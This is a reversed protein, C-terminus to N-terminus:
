KEAYFVDLLHQVDERATKDLEPKIVLKDGEYMLGLYDMVKEKLEKIEKVNDYISVDLKLLNVMIINFVASPMDKLIDLLDRRNVPASMENRKRSVKHYCRILNGYDDLIIIDGINSTHNCLM